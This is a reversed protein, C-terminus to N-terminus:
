LRDNRRRCDLLQSQAKRPYAQEALSYLCSDAFQQFYLLVSFTASCNMQNYGRGYHAQIRQHYLFLQRHTKYGALSFLLSYSNVIKERQAQEEPNHRRSSM